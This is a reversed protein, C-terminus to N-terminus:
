LTGVHQSIFNGANAMVNDQIFKEVGNKKFM